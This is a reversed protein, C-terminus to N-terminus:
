KLTKPWYYKNHKTYLRTSIELILSEHNQMNLWLKAKTVREEYKLIKRNLGSFYEHPSSPRPGWFIFNFRPKNRIRYVLGDCGFTHQTLLTKYVVYTCLSVFISTIGSLTIM